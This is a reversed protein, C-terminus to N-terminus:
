KKLIAWVFHHTISYIDKKSLNEILKKQMRKDKLDIMCDFGALAGTHTIWDTLVRGNQFRFVKKGAKESLVQFGARKFWRLFIAKNKPNPLNFMISQIKEPNDLLLKPYIKRIEPLTKKTNVIVGFIGGPKLVRYVEKIIKHPPQYKIAWCCVVGDLMGDPQEKLFSLMDKQIYCANKIKKKKAEKLMGESIDVLYFRAKPYFRELKQSNYGTGCALDLLCKADYPLARRFGELVEDNYVHMEQLFKDEYGSSVLTYAKGIDEVKVIKRQVGLLGMKRILKLLKM